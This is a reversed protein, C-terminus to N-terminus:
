SDEFQIKKEDLMIKYKQKFGFTIFIFTTYGKRPFSAHVVYVSESFPKCYFDDM